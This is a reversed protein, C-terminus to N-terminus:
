GFAKAEQEKKAKVRKTVYDSILAISVVSICGIFIEKIAEFVFFDGHKLNLLKIGLRQSTTGM